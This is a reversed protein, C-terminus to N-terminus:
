RAALSQVVNKAPSATEGISERRLRSPTGISRFLRHRDGPHQDQRAWLQGAPTKM